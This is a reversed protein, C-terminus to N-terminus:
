KAGSKKQLDLVLATAAKFLDDGPHALCYTSIPSVIGNLDAGAAVDKSEKLGYANFATIFGALWTEQLAAEPKRGQHVQTWQSCPKGGLGKVTVDRAEAQLASLAALATAIILHPPFYPM